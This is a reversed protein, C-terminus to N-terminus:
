ECVKIFKNNKDTLTTLEFHKDLHELVKDLDGMNFIMQFNNIGLHPKNDNYYEHFWVLDYRGTNRMKIYGQKM